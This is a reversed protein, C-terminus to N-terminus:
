EELEWHRMYLQCCVRRGIEIILNDIDEFRVTDEDDALVYEKKYTVVAGYGGAKNIRDINLLQLETPKNYGVKMELMVTMGHHVILLDPIGSAFRESVKHVYDEPYLKTWHERFKRTFTTENM